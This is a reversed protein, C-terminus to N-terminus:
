LNSDLEIIKKVVADLNPNIPTATFQLLPSSHFHRKFSSVRFKGVNNHSYNIVVKILTTAICFM